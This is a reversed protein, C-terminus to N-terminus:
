DPPENGSGSEAGEDTVDDDAPREEDARGVPIDLDVEPVGPPRPSEPPPTVPDTM